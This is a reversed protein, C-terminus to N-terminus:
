REFAKWGRRYVVIGLLVMMPGFGVDEAQRSIGFYKDRWRRPELPEENWQCLGRVTIFLGLVIVAGGILKRGM